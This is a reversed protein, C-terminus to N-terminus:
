RPHGRGRRPRRRDNTAHQDAHALPRPLALMSGHGQARRASTAPRPAALEGLARRIANGEFPRIAEPRVNVTTHSDMTSRHLFVYTSDHTLGASTPHAPTLNPHAMVVSCTVAEPIQAPWKAAPRHM